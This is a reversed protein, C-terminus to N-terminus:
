RNWGEEGLDQLYRRLADKWDPLPQFDAMQLKKRDLRSNLPRVARSHGYEESTVPYVKPCKKDYDIFGLEGSQRFIEMAFEYWSIYGGENTVHYCGYNDTEAMDILLRALDETYTPTGVQDSVVRLEEYKRGLRLMTKVFNNGNRGFVWSTRVIFYEDLVAQVAREGELKTKGYFNRPGYKVCDAKWPLNGQGDFVYDTSIYIMKADLKRCMRALNKTGEVNINWVKKQNESEEAGDVNTWAACHVVVEPRIRELTDRMCIEDTIDMSVYSNTENEEALDTGVAEYNRKKLERLVDYGLQGTAGTVLFKM